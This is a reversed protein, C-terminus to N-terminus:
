ANSMLKPNYLFNNSKLFSVSQDKTSFYFRYIEGNTAIIKIVNDEYQILFTKKDGLNQNQEFYEDFPIKIDSYILEEGLNIVMSFYSSFSKTASNSKHLFIHITKCSGVILFKTKIDVIDCIESYTTGRYYEKEKKKDKLNFESIKDGHYSVFFLNNSSYFVKQIPYFPLLYKSPESASDSSGEFEYFNFHEKSYQVIFFIKLLYEEDSWLCLDFTAPFSLEVKNIFEADKGGEFKFININKKDQVFVFKNVNKISTVSGLIMVSCIDKKTSCDYFYVSDNSYVINDKGTFIVIGTQYMPCVVDINGLDESFLIRKGEKSQHVSVGHDHSVAFTAKTQDFCICNITKISINSKLYEM